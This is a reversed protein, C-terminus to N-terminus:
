TINTFPKLSGLSLQLALDMNLQLSAAKSTSASQWSHETIGVISCTQFLYKIWRRITDASVKTHNVM